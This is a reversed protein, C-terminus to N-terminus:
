REHQIQAYGKGVLKRRSERHAVDIRTTIRQPSSRSITTRFFFSSATRYMSRCLREYLRALRLTRAMLNLTRCQRRSGVNRAGPARRKEMPYCHTLGPVLTPRRGTKRQACYPAPHLCVRHADCRHEAAMGRHFIRFSSDVLDVDLM